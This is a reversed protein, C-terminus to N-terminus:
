RKEVILVDETVFGASDRFEIAGGLSDYALIIATKAEDRDVVSVEVRNIDERVCASPVFPLQKEQMGESIDALLRTLYDLSYDAQKFVTTTRDLGPNRTFIEEQNEPTNETLWIVMRGAEDTYSGGWIEEIPRMEGTSGPNEVAPVDVVPVDETPFVVPESGSKASQEKSGHYEAVPLQVEPAKPVSGLTVTFCLCAVAAVGCFVGATRRKRARFYADRRALVSRAMENYDKM